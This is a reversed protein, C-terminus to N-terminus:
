PLPLMRDTLLLGDVPGVRRGDRRGDREGEAEGVCVGVLREERRGERRTLKASVCVRVHVGRTELEQESWM